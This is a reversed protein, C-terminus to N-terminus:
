IQGEPDQTVLSITEDADKDQTAIDHIKSLLALRVIRKCIPCKNSKKMWPHLCSYHYLHCCKPLEIVKEGKNLESFCIICTDFKETGQYTITCLDQMVALEKEQFETNDVIEKNEQYFLDLNFEKKWIYEYM